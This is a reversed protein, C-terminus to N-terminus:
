PRYIRVKQKIRKRCAPCNAPMRPRTRDHQMVPSHQESCWSCMVLHGCPLCAIDATQTYCIKCDLKVTMDEDDQPEPRGSDETDLGLTLPEEDDEAEDPGAYDFPPSSSNASGLRRYFDIISRPASGELVQATGNERMRAIIATREPEPTTRLLHELHNPPRPIDLSDTTEIRNADEAAGAPSAPQTWDQLRLMTFYENLHDEYTSNAGPVLEGNISTLQEQDQTPVLNREERRVEEAVRFRDWARSFMGAIPSVYESGQNEMDDRAGFVRRYNEATRQERRLQSVQARHDALDLDAVNLLDSAEDRNHRAENYAHQATVFEESVQDRYRQAQELHTQAVDLRQQADTLFRDRYVGGVPPAPTDRVAVDGESPEAGEMDDLTRGLSVLRGTAETPDPVLEGLDRLGSIVREIGNRMRHLERRLATIRRNQYERNRSGTFQMAQGAIRMAQARSPPAILSRSTDPSSSVEEAAADEFMQDLEADLSPGTEAAVSPLDIHQREDALSREHGARLEDLTRPLHGPSVDRFPEGLVAAREESGDDKTILRYGRHFEYWRELFDTQDPVEPIRTQSPRLDTAAVRNEWFEKCFWCYRQWRTGRPVFGVGDIYTSYSPAHAREDACACCQPISTLRCSTPLKHDCFGPLREVDATLTGM